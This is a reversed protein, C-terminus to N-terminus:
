PVPERSGAVEFVKRITKPNFVAGPHRNLIKCVSSVDLDCKKAIEVQTAM